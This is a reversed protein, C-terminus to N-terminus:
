SRGGKQLRGVVRAAPVGVPIFGHNDNRVVTAPEDGSADKGEGDGNIAKAIRVARAHDPTFLAVRTGGTFDLRVWSQGGAAVPEAHKLNHLQISIM